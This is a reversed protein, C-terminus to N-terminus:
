LVIVIILLCVEWALIGFAWVDNATTYRGYTLAEPAMWKIPM